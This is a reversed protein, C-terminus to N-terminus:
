SIAGASKKPKAHSTVITQLEALESLPIHCAIQRSNPLQQIPPQTNVCKDGLSRPCRSAFVCGRASKAMYSASGDLRITSADDAKGLRPLAALLAETYPHHPAQFVDETDGFELVRGQYMIAVTDAINRVVGLDHSIFLYSIGLRAQLSAMENLIAAQVSIDLASTPEDCIIVDPEAGIARAISVRQKEGGSLEHPFRYLYRESLNVSNMLEIAKKRAEEKSMKFYLRLPRSIIEDVTFNPNLSGAPNQFVFQIRRQTDKERKGASAALTKGRFEVRGATPRSLGVLCRALTSKGSGSEGVVGLTSGAPIEISVGNVAKIPDRKSFPMGGGSSPFWLALDTTKLVIDKREFARAAIIEPMAAPATTGGIENFRICRSTHGPKTEFMAPRANRCEDIAFECRDAFVCGVMPLRLDPLSGAIAKLKVREGTFKPMAAILGRTYPHKPEFVIEHCTAEEVLEGAYLVGIRDCVKAVVAINHSIFLISARVRTRLESILDLIVAETTVDLGTTPEDMILLDPDCALAMAIVVRQQQGGSLQHPYRNYFTEPEPLSVQRLLGISRQRVEEASMETHERLIEAIQEGIKLGPNLSDMPDQYVMAIRNGRLQRLEERSLDFINRQQFEISGGTVTGGNRYNMVSFAVTTKGSGSEGILGYAEGPMISFSVDRVARLPNDARGYSISLGKVTLTCEFTM